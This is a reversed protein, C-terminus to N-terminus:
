VRISLYPQSSFEAVSSRRLFGRRFRRASPKDDHAPPTKANQTYLLASSKAKAAELNNISLRAFPGSHKVVIRCYAPLNGCSVIGGVAGERGILITEIDRGDENTVLLSALSPGCPFYVTGVNDGPNYLLKDSLNQGLELHPAILAYDKARLADLLNNFPRDDSM